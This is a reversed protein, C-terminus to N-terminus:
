RVLFVPNGGCVDGEGIIIAEPNTFTQDAASAQSEIGVSAKAGSDLMDVWAAQAAAIIEQIKAQSMWLAVVFFAMTPVGSAAMAVRWIGIARQNLSKQVFALSAPTWWIHDWFLAARVAGRMSFGGDEGGRWWNAHGMRYM